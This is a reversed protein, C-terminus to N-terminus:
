GKFTDFLNKVLTNYLKYEHKEIMKIIHYMYQEKSLLKEAWYLILYYMNKPRTRKLPLRSCTLIARLPCITDM